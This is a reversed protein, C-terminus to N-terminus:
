MLFGDFTIQYLFGDYPNFALSGDGSLDCVKTIDGNVTSLTSLEDDDVNVVFLTEVSNSLIEGYANMREINPTNCLIFFISLFALL